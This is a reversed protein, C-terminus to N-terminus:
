KKDNQGELKPLAHLWDQQAKVTILTRNGFKLAELRGDRIEAYLKTLGIGLNQAANKPADALNKNHEYTMKVVGINICSQIITHM